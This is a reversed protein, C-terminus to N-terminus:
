RTKTAPKLDKLIQTFNPKDRFESISKLEGYNGFVKKYTKGDRGKIIEESNPKPMIYYFFILFINIIYSDITVLYKQLALLM